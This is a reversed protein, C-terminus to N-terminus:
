LKEFEIQEKQPLLDFIEKRFDINSEIKKNLYLKIQEDDALEAAYSKNQGFQQIVKELYKPDNNLKETLFDTLKKDNFDINQLAAQNSNVFNKIDSNAEIEKIMADVKQPNKNIYDLTQSFANIVDDNNKIESAQTCTTGFALIM